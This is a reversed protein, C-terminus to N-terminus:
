LATLAAGPWALFTAILWTSYAVVAAFLWTLSLILLRGLRYNRRAIAECCLIGVTVLGFKFALLYKMDWSFLQRALPNAEYVPSDPWALLIYTAFFDLANVLLFRTTENVLLFPTTFLAVLAKRRNEGAPASELQGPTGRNEIPDLRNAPESRPDVRNNM